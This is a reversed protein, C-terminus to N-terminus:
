TQKQKKKEEHRKALESTRIVKPKYSPAKYPWISTPIFMGVQRQYEVYEPYKGASIAETLWTSGQFLLFLSGSGVFTWSYLSNTAYCSWQYLVFWITQEAFFNPHRSYGWLGSTIFGRDLDAQDWGRPLKADKNYQHKATQYEWQQGDSIWESIVLLLEVAFYAFDSATVNPEFRTSLLIAYAPVCSFAFLLVSQILSIFTVNLLFFVFAPVKSKVIERYYILMERLRRPKQMSEGYWRYDESGVNYGGRRWYNYTLRISWLTSFAAVLDIRSHPLGAMRAWGALHIIYLNPLISWMRDVQSYNRNVESVILFVGALFISAAFGTILPNTEVYLRQLNEISGISAVLRAPLAFFQDVFPEVTKSFDSCDEISQLVPLAALKAAM